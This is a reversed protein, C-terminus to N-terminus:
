RLGEAAGIGPALAVEPASAAGPAADPGLVTAIYDSPDMLQAASAEAFRVFPEPAFGIVCTLAALGAIPAVLAARERVPIASLSPAIGDPHPKWFAEAWIKTM